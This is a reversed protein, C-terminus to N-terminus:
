HNLELSNEDVSCVLAAGGSRHEQEYSSADDEATHHDEPVLNSMHVLDDNDYVEPLDMNELALSDATTADDSMSPSMLGGHRTDTELRIPEPQSHHQLQNAQNTMAAGIASLRMPRAQLRRESAGAQPQRALALRASGISAPKVSAGLQDLITPTTQSARTTSYCDAAGDLSADKSQSSTGRRSLSASPTQTQVGTPVLSSKGESAVVLEGVAPKVSAVKSVRGSAPTTAVSHGVQITQARKVAQMHSGSRSSVSQASQSGDVSTAHDLIRTATRSAAPTTCFSPIEIREDSALSGGSGTASNSTASPRSRAHGSASPTGSSATENRQSAQPTLSPTEANAGRSSQRSSKDLHKSSNPAAGLSSDRNRLSPTSRISRKMDSSPQRSLDATKNAKEPAQVIVNSISQHESSKVAPSSQPEDEDEDMRVELEDDVEDADIDELEEDEDDFEEEELQEDYDEEDEGQSFSSEYSQSIPPSSYDTGDGYHQEADSSMSTVQQGRKGFGSGARTGGEASRELQDTDDNPYYTSSKKRYMIIVVIIICLLACIIVIALTLGIKPESAAYRPAAGACFKFDGPSLEHLQYQRLEGPFECRLCFDNPSFGFSIQPDILSRITETISSDDEESELEALWNATAMDSPSNPRGSLLNYDALLHDGPASNSGSNSLSMDFELVALSDEIKDTSLSGPMIDNEQILLSFVDMVEKSRVPKPEDSSLDSTSPAICTYNYIPSRLIWDYISAVKCQSCFWPNAGLNVMKLGTLEDMSVLFSEEIESFKNHSLDLVELSALPEITEATIQDLQNGSLNLYKLQHLNKFVHPSPLSKEIGTFALNLYELELLPELLLDLQDPALSLLQTNGSLDLYELHAFLPGFLSQSLILMNPQQQHQSNLAPAVQIEPTQNVTPLVLNASILPPGPQAIISQQNIAPPTQPIPYVVPPLTVNNNTMILRKITANCFACRWLSLLQNNALNLEILKLGNFARDRISSIQNHRISLFKVNFFRHLQLLKIREFKNSDVNLKVLNKFVIGSLSYPTSRLQSSSNSAQQIYVFSKLLNKSLILQRLSSQMPELLQLNITKFSNGVLNLYSLQTLNAFQHAALDTLQNHAVSLSKLSLLSSFLASELEDLNNRDLNLEILKDLYRFCSKSLRKLQNLNLKLRRVRSGRKFVESDCVQFHLNVIVLERLNVFQMLRPLRFTSTSSSAPRKRDVKVTNELNSSTLSEPLSIHIIQTRKDITLLDSFQASECKVLTLNTGPRNPATTVQVTSCSCYMACRYNEQSAQLPQQHFLSAASKIKIQANNNNHNNNNNSSSVIRLDAPEFQGVQRNLKVAEKDATSAFAVLILILLSTRLFPKLRDSQRLHSLVPLPM